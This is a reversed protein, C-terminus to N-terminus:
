FIKTTQKVYNIKGNCTDFLKELPTGKTREVINETNVMVLRIIKSALLITNIGDKRAREWFTKNIKHQDSIEM